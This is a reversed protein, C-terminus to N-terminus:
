VLPSASSSIGTPIIPLEDKGGPLPFKGSLALAAVIAAMLLPILNIWKIVSKYTFFEFPAIRGADQFYWQMDTQKLKWRVYPLPKGRLIAKEIIKAKGYAARLYKHYFIVMTSSALSIAGTASCALLLVALQGNRFVSIAAGLGLFIAGFAGFNYRTIDMILSEQGVAGGAEKQYLSLLFERDEVANPTM